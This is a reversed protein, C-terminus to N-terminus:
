ISTGLFLLGCGSEVVGQIVTSLSLLYPKYNDDICRAM